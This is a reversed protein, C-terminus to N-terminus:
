VPPARPTKSFVSLIPKAKENFIYYHADVESVSFNVQVSDPNDYFHFYLSAYFSLEKKSHKHQNIPQGNNHWAHSHVIVVGNPLVHRHTNLISSQLVLLYM